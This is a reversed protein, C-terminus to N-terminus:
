PGSFLFCAESGPSLGRVPPKSGPPKTADPTTEWIDKLDLLPEFGFRFWDLGSFEPAAECRGRGEDVGLGVGGFGGTWRFVVVGGGNGGWGRHGVAGAELIQEFSTLHWLRGLPARFHFDEGALESAKVLDSHRLTRM